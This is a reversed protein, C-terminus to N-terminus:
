TSWAKGDLDALPVEHYPGPVPDYNLEVTGGIESTYYGTIVLGKLTRYFKDNEMKDDVAAIAAVQDDASLSLLGGAKADLATLGDTFATAEKDNMYKAVMHNIYGHVDAAAAGPTDTDPIIIDAIRKVQELQDASLIKAKPGEKYDVAADCASLALTSGMLATLGTIFNRRDIHDM